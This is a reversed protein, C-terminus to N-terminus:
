NIVNACYTMDVSNDTLPNGTCQLRGATCDVQGDLSEDTEMFEQSPINTMSVTLFTQSGSGCTVGFATSLDMTVDGGGGFSHGVPNAGGPDTYSPIYNEFNPGGNSERFNASLYSEDMLTKFIQAPNSVNAAQHPWVAYKAYFQGNATEFQRLHSALKTGGARGLLDWAVSGIILTVLIAIVAVILITQDITYGDNRRALQNLFNKM